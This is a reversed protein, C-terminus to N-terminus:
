KMKLKKLKPVIYIESYDSFRNNRFYDQHYAEAPYFEEFEVLQTVIPDRFARKTTLDKYMKLAAKKQDDDHYFIVSRYQPGFDDGQSNLTTPDHAKFFLALLKEYGVVNANYEIHVVEAHGTMGTCVQDYTPNAVGGGSFGSMVSKVGPVREFVAEISWFCGAGFTAKEWKPPQDDDKSPKEGNNKAKETKTAMKARGKATSKTSTAPPDASFAPVAIALIVMAAAMSWVQHLRM